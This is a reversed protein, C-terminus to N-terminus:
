SHGPPPCAGAPIEHGRVHAHPRRLRVWLTRVLLSRCVHPLRAGVVGKCLQCRGGDQSLLGGAQMGDSSRAQPYASRLSHTCTPLCTPLHCRCRLRRCRPPPPPPPGQLSLPTQILELPLDLGQRLRLRVERPLRQLNAPKGAFRSARAPLCWAVSTPLSPRISIREAFSPAQTRSKSCGAGSACCPRSGGGGGGGGSCACAPLISDTTERLSEWRCVAPIGRLM